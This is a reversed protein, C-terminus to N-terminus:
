EGSRFCPLYLRLIELREAGPKCMCPRALGLELFRQMLVDASERSFKRSMGNSNFESIVQLLVLCPTIRQITCVFWMSRFTDSVEPPRCGSTIFHHVPLHVTKSKKLLRILEFAVISGFDQGFITVPPMDPLVGQRRGKELRIVVGHHVLSALVWDLHELIGTLPQEHVRHLKGALAHTLM